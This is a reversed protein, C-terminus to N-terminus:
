QAGRMNLVAYPTKLLVLLDMMLSHHEVYQIDYKLMGHVSTNDERSSVQWLGTIGPRVQSRMKMIEPFPELMYPVLPRPGVLSMDGCVVNWIQPMEDISAKRILWGVPTVRPDNDAKHVLGRMKEENIKTMDVRSEHDIYMSRLKYMVFPEGHLGVRKQAFVPSGPSTLRIALWALGIVPSLIVLLISGVVIDLARKGKRQYFEHGLM